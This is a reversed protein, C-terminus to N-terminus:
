FWLLQLQSVVYEVEQGYIHDSVLEATNSVDCPADMFHMMAAELDSIWWPSGQAEIWEFSFKWRAYLRTQSSGQEGQDGASEKQGPELEQWADRILYWGLVVYKGRRDDHDELSTYDQGIDDMLLPWWRYKSGAILVVPRQTDRAALLRRINLDDAMQDRELYRKFPCEVKKTKMKNNDLRFPNYVDATTRPYVISCSPVRREPLFGQREDSTQGLNDPIQDPASSSGGRLM